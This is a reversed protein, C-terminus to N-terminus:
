KLTEKYRPHFSVIEEKLRQRDLHTYIETTTISAHGLMDQVARLDAGAEVLHTAFSHRLTHPSINKNIQAQMAMQKIIIFIMTRTLCAGRRNLFIYDENGPKIAQHNRTKEFYHQIWKLALQGIPILREKNGKGIVRLFGEDARLQSIKIHAVESVRLGCSYMVEVIARNRTNEAVSMDLSQIMANIEDVSLIDPLKRGIRPGEILESPDHEILRELVLYGFFSKIGSVIRAQTTPSLGVEHILALFQRLDHVTITSPFVAPELGMAFKELKEVDQVYATISNPALSKELRLYNVFGRQAIKWNM